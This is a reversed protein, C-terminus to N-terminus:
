PLLGDGKREIDCCWRAADPSWCAFKSGCKTRVLLLVESEPLVLPSRLSGQGGTRNTFFADGQSAHFEGIVDYSKMGTVFSREFGADACGADYTTSLRSVIDEVHAGEIKPYKPKWAKYCCMGPQVQAVANAEDARYVCKGESRSSITSVAVTDAASGGDARRALMHAAAAGKKVLKERAGADNKKKESEQADRERGKDPADDFMDMLDALPLVHDFAKASRRAVGEAGGVPSCIAQTACLALALAAVRKM